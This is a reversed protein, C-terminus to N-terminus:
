EKMAVDVIENLIAGDFRNIFKFSADNLIPTPGCAQVSRDFRLFTNSGFLLSSDETGDGNLVKEGHIRANASHGSRGATLSVFEALDVFELNLNNGRISSHNPDIM